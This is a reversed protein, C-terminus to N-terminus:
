GITSEWDKHYSVGTISPPLAVFRMDHNNLIVNIFAAYRNRNNYVSYRQKFDEANFRLLAGANKPIYICVNHKYQSGRLLQPVRLEPYYFNILTNPFMDIYEEFGSIDNPLIADDEIFLTEKKNQLIHVLNDVCNNGGIYVEGNYQNALAEANDRRVQPADKFTLITTNM